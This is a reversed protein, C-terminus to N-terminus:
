IGRNLCANRKKNSELQSADRRKYEETDLVFSLCHRFKIIMWIQTIKTIKLNKRRAPADVEGEMQEIMTAAIVRTVTTRTTSKALFM